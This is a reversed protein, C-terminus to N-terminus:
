APIAHNTEKAYAPRQLVALGGVIIGNWGEQRLMRDYYQMPGARQECRLLLLTADGIMPMMVDFDGAIDDAGGEGLHLVMGFQGERDAAVLQTIAHRWGDRTDASKVFSTVDLLEHRLRRKRHRQDVQALKAKCEQLGHGGWHFCLARKSPDLRCKRCSRRIGNAVAITLEAGIGIIAHLRPHAAYAFQDLLMLRDRHSFGLMKYM